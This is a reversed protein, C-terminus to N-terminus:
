EYFNRFIDLVSNYFGFRIYVKMFGVIGLMFVEIFLILLDRNEKFDKCDKFVM